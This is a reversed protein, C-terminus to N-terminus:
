MPNNKSTRSRKKKMLNDKSSSGKLNLDFNDFKNFVEPKINAKNLEIIMKEPDNQFKSTIDEVVERIGLIWPHNITQNFSMRRNVNKELLGELFNKCQTSINNGEYSLTTSDLIKCYETISM